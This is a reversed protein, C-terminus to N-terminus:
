LEIIFWSFGVRILAGVHGVGSEPGGVHIVVDIGCHAEQSKIPAVHHQRRPVKATAKM